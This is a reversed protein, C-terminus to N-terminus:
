VNKSKELLKRFCLEFCEVFQISGTLNDVYKNRVHVIRTNRFFEFVLVIMPTLFIKVINIM